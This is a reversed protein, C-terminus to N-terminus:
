SLVSEFVFNSDDLEGFGAALKKKDWVFLIFIGVFKDEQNWIKKSVSQMCVTWNRETWLNLIVFHCCVLIREWSSRVFSHCLMSSYFTKKTNLWIIRKMLKFINGLFFSSCKSAFSKWHSFKQWNCWKLIYQSKTYITQTQNWKLTEHQHKM